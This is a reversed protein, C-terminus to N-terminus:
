WVSTRQWRASLFCNRIKGFESKEFSSYYFEYFNFEPFAINPAIESFNRMKSVKIKLYLPGLASYHRNQPKQLQALIYHMPPSKVSVAQRSRRTM